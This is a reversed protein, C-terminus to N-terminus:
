FKLQHPYQNKSLSFRANLYAKLLPVGAIAKLLAGDVKKQAAIREPAIVKKKDEAKFFEDANQESADEVKAFFKDDIDKVDVKSVDVKTSTAIVYAQNVRRLPVGNVKFPGSILLLGSALQKLFVVRKGRFRGAVLILVTGPTISARLKAPKVKKSHRLPRRVDDAAYWRPEKAPEAQKRQKPQTTKKVFKYAARKQNVVSRSYRWVGNAIEFNRSSSRVKGM